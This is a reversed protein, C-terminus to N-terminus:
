PGQLSKTTQYFLGSHVEMIAQIQILAYRRFDDLNKYENGTQEHLWEWALFRPKDDKM